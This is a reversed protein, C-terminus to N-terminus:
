ARRARPRGASPAPACGCCTPAYAALTNASLGREARPPRDLRSRPRVPRGRDRTGRERRTRRAARRDLLLTVPGDNVSEVDMRARFTGSAVELGHGRLRDLFRQYLARAPEPPAARTFSPAPRAAHRRRAHVPVCSVRARVDEVSRNMDHLEDPFIRLAATRDAYAEADHPGDRGRRRRLGPPRPRDRRGHTTSGSAPATVRQVLV